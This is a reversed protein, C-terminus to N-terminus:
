SSTDAYQVRYTDGHRPPTIQIQNLRVDDMSNLGLLSDSVYVITDQKRRGKTITTGQVASELDFDDSVWSTSLMTSHENRRHDNYLGTLRHRGLRSIWGDSEAFDIEGFATFRFTERDIENFRIDPSNVRTYARGLNPNPQGNQLYEAISVYLDYPGTTSTGRGGTFFFNQLSEYHQEDYAIEIAFKNDFFSQELAINKADFERSVRDIGGSYIKNRYDFVNPNRLTPVAFGTAYAETYPSNTHYEVTRGSIPTDGPVNGYAAVVGPTGAIGTSELTDLNSKWTLLSQYGELNGGDGYSPSTADHNPFVVGIERFMSPHVSTNIGSEANEAFPNFTTQFEWTGGQSPDIVNSPPAIGSLQEISAPIPQFWGHYAVSPPLTEVPSGNSTGSEGNLRLITADLVSSGENKALVVDLAAYIREDRNWTPKQKFEADDNLLALRLAVRGDVLNRNLDLVSRVSGYNDLRISAEGFNEGQVAKKTGNNIVGGPSGIGFLLSNPGRSVTVRDTNYSDFAIDTLFFGRTLDARGLGRIRQNLQPNTRQDRPIYRGDDVDGAGSFNGQNGGVETNSTYSLLSGADTAGTDELFQSTIVSISSGLDKLNTKIRTGALTSTAQYGTDDSADVTFPSLEFIEQDAEGTSSQASLRASGEGFLFLGGAIICAFKWLKVNLVWRGQSHHTQNSFKM